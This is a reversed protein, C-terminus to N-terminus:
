PLLSFTSSVEEIMINDKASTEFFEIRSQQAFRSADEMPVVRAPDDAKNGV